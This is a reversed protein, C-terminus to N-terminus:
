FNLEKANKPGGTLIEEFSLLSFYNKIGDPQMFFYNKSFNTSKYMIILGSVKLMKTILGLPVQKCAV